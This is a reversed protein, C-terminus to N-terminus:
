VIERQFQAAAAHQEIPHLSIEANAADGGLAAFHQQVVIGDEQLHHEILAVPGVADQRRGGVFSDLVVDAHGLLHAEIARALVLLQFIRAIEIPGVVEAKQDRAFHGVSVFEVSGVNGTEGALPNRRHLAVVIVRRDDDPRGDVFAPAHGVQAVRALLVMQFREVGERVRQVGRSDDDIVVAPLMGIHRIKEGYVIVRAGAIQEVLPVLIKARGAGPNRVIVLRRQNGAVM